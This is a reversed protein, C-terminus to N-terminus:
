DHEDPLIITPGFLEVLIGAETHSLVISLNAGSLAVEVSQNQEGDCELDALQGECDLRAELHANYTNFAWDVDVRGIFVTVTALKNNVIISM